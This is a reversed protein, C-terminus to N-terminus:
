HIEKTLTFRVTLPGLKMRGDYGGDQRPTLYDSLGFQPYHIRVQGNERWVNGEIRWRGLIRNKVYHHVGLYDYFLKGTWILNLPSFPGLVRGVYRGAPLPLIM